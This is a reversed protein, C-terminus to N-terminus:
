LTVQATLSTNFLPSQAVYMRFRGALNDNRNFDRTWAARVLNDRNLINNLNLRLDVNSGQFRFSYSISANLENFAPLSATNDYNGFYHDWYNDSVGFRFHSVNYGFGFSYMREPSFPVVKGVVNEAPIGFIKKLNMSRWKNSAVTISTNADIRRYRARASLELGKHRAKGANITAREGNEETVSAIKDDFDMTYYNAQIAYYKSAYAAGFELNKLTEEKLDIPKGNADKPQNAGPGRSRSYWDAARPEKKSVSYNGYINFNRNVNYNAGVKPMFFTFTREYDSKSFKLSGDSNKLTKTQFFTIGTFKEAGFDYVQIPKEEIKSNYRAYQGDLMLTLKEVPTLLVRGFASLNTVKGDYDYRRQVEELTKVGGTTLDVKRFDFTQAYHHAKWHRAEGGVVVTLYKSFKNQFATNIGFQDHDNQSDNRWSHAFTSSILDSARSVSTTTGNYTYTKNVPDYGTLVQGTREYVFRADRGFYKADTSTSVNKFGILGTNVDFFDNRLYRGGGRGFTLFATTKLFSTKSIAWEDHLEFQPKFYYNEQYPHGDRNYERGLKKLLAPDQSTRAQNHRQPAGHANLTLVHKGLISQLGVYFAHGNYFTHRIYNDGSKREYKVYINLKGDLLLGSTFEVSFAQNFPNYSQIGGTGDASKSTVLGNSGIAGGDTNFGVVSGRFSLKPTASYRSTEINVSGGFAGSGVLSSGVGRQVQISSANGSLGTWNSWYVVQSEPDNEPVGNILIQIHEADFGRIYIQSEGIGLSSTYVGPINKLLDPVDQTTYENLIQDQGIETFTVPTKREKARNVEVVVESGKFASPIMKIELSVTKSGVTLTTSYDKYGLYSVALTWKGDPVNELMFFGDEDTAAGMTTTKLVVNAGILPSGSDADKVVGKITGSIAFSFALLLVLIPYFLVKM